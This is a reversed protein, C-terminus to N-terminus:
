KLKDFHEFEKTVALHKTKGIGALKVGKPLKDRYIKYYVKNLNMGTKEAFEAVTVIMTDFTSLTKRNEFSNRYFRKM